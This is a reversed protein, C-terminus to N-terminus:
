QAQELKGNNIFWQGTEVPLAGVGNWVTLSALWQTIAVNISSTEYTSAPAAAEYAKIIQAAIGAALALSIQSSNAM